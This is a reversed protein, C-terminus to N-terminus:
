SPTSGFLKARRQGLNDYVEEPVNVEGLGEHGSNPGHYDSGGTTVLEIRASLELFERVQSNSHTPYYVEIGELGLDKLARIEEPSVFYGPHALVPVGKAKRIAAIAVEPTPGLYEVYASKGKALFKDFAEKRSFVVGKEKLKDAIHPRGIASKMCSLDFDDMSIRFGMRKLKDVTASARELRLRRHEILLQQFSPEEAEIFYGLIHIVSRTERTNIEIAPILTMNRRKAEAAAIELGGTSDHDCLALHTIGLAQAKEVLDSVELTGDSFTSHTHLDIKM